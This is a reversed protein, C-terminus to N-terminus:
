KRAEKLVEATLSDFEKNARNVYIGTIAVTFLIVGMGMPIGITTTVGAALPTGLFEKNFAILAIFGYYVVLMLISLLTGFGSRRPKLEQYKPNARIRALIEDSM